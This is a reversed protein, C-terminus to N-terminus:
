LIHIQIHIKKIVFINYAGWKELDYIKFLLGKIVLHNKTDYKKSIDKGKQM